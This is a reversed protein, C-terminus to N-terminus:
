TYFFQATVRAPRDPVLRAWHAGLADPFAHFAYGDGTAVEAYRHWAGTGQFDLEIGVGLPEDGEHSV